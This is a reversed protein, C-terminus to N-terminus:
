IQKGPPTNDEPEEDDQEIFVKVIFFAVFATAIVWVTIDRALHKEGDDPFEFESTDPEATAGLAGFALVPDGAAVTRAFM